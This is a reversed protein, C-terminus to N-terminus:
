RLAATTAFSAAASVNENASFWIRHGAGGANSFAALVGGEFPIMATVPSSGDYRLEGSSLREGNPSFWIRNGNGGAARFATLVGGAYPIMATVPSTGDYRIPGGGLNKGDPSWHIRYGLGAGAFATLVGGNYETMRVVRSSGKYELHAPSGHAAGTESVFVGGPEARAQAVSFAALLAVCLAVLRFRVVLVVVGQNDPKTLRRQEASYRTTQCQSGPM